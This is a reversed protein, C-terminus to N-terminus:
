GRGFGLCRRWVGEEQPAVPVATPTGNMKSYAMADLHAKIIVVPCWHRSTDSMTARYQFRPADVIGTGNVGDRTVLQSLTEMGHMAGFVTAANLVIGSKSVTLNYSEDTDLTLSENSSAINVQCSSLDGNSM